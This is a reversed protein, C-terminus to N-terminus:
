QPISMQKPDIYVRDCRPCKGKEAREKVVTQKDKHCEKCKYEYKVENYQKYEKM